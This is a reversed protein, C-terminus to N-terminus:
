CFPPTLSSRVSDLRSRLRHLLLARDVFTLKASASKVASEFRVLTEDIEVASLDSRASLTTLRFFPHGLLRTSLEQFTLSTEENSWSARRWDASATVQTAHTRYLLGPLAACRMSAGALQMRIWLDYDEAPVDRYGGVTELVVRRAFMTPHAVPNSLLLHYPFAATSIAKPFNPRIQRTAPTWEVVTTFCVQDDALVRRQFAFRWPLVVDDADMRGVFESDTHNLLHNLAGTVGAADASSQVSLRPDSIGALIPATSDSSADDFVVLAADRPLARLTSRVAREITGEGNKVPLLISLRPM